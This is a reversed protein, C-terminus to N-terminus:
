DPTPREVHDIVLVDVPGKMSELKLGLQEELATFLSLGEEPQPIRGATDQTTPSVRQEPSWELNFDYTGSLGTHDFVPRGVKTALAAALASIPRVSAKVFNAVIMPACLPFDGFPTATVFEGKAGKEALYGACDFTHSTLRPGLKGDKRALVLNYVTGERTENHTQLKFRESLLERVMGAVQLPMPRQGSPYKAVIDFRVARAWAPLGILQDNRMGFAYGIIGDLPANTTRFATPAPGSIGFGPDGSTNPKVSAVDFALPKSSDAPAQAVVIACALAVLVVVLPTHNPKM